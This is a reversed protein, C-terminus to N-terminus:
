VGNGCNLHGASGAMGALQKHGKRDCGGGDGSMVSQDETATFKINLYELLLIVCCIKQERNRANLVALINITIWIIKYKM